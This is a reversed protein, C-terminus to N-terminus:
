ARISVPTGPYVLEFLVEVDPIQMRICGHSVSYGISAPDNTGHIGVGPSSIGIWRTGLPNDPGPPIPLAGKAWPADPPPVWTPDVVKSIVSFNGTPTPYASQGVAVGFTMTPKGMRYLTLSHASEDIVIRTSLAGITDQGAIGDAPMFHASQFQRVAAALKTGYVTPLPGKFYGQEKLRLALARVDAGRAGRLMSATGFKETSDVLIRAKKTAENGAEDRAVAVLWHVGQALPKALHSGLVYPAGDLTVKQYAITGSDTITGSLNPRSRSAVPRANLQIAPPTADVRLTSAKAAINGARDRVTVTLPLTGDSVGLHVDFRGDAGATANAASTGAKVELTAEPETIGRLDLTDKRLWGTAPAGKMRLPPPTTDVRITWSREMSGGFIGSATAHLAVVHGGDPLRVGQVVLQNGELRANGTVTRGDITVQYSSLNSANDVKIVIRPEGKNTWSNDGPSAAGIRATQAYAFALWAGALVGSLLLAAVVVRLTGLRNFV